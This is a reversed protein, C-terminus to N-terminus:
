TTIAVLRSYVTPGHPYSWALRVKGGSHFQVRTDFYCSPGLAVSRVTSFQGHGGPQLQIEVHQPRSAYNAPRACGWVELGRGRQSTVPLFIPIRFAALTPKAAGGAFELGTVFKSPGNAPPDVLLYHDWSRLRPNRWALYEAWNEYAPALSLRLVGQSPPNTRYGYETSYIPFPNAVGYERTVTDLFHELRSLTALYLYEPAGADSAVSVVVNPAVAGDPYPHVAFGSARFLAPHQGAFAASNTPCDDAAAAAGTLPRLSSDVCYLARLFRMPVMYGFTGPFPPFAQGYPALEGIVITDGGHGTQHLASWGADLLERYMVPSVNVTSNDVTQPALDAEGLNPENWISWFSVRPLPTPSGPPIYHGSYRTGVARAFPAFRIASPRWVGPAGGPTFGPGMAWDPAGGTVNFLVGMHLAKADRVIADYPAWRASPYAAPNSPDFHAPASRADPSPAVSRWAVMVRVYQVGLQRLAKLTAEPQNTLQTPAEFISILPPRNAVPRTETKGCGGALLAAAVVLALPSLLRHRSFL